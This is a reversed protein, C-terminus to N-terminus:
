ELDEAHYERWAKLNIEEFEKLESNKVPVNLAYCFLRFVHMNPSYKGNNFIIREDAIYGNLRFYRLIAAAIAPSRSVGGKCSVIFDMDFGNDIYNKYDYILRTLLKYQHLNSTEDDNIKFTKYKQINVSYRLIGRIKSVYNEYYDGFGIDFIGLIFHIEYIDDINTIFNYYDKHNKIMVKENLNIM